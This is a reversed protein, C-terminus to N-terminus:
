QLVNQILTSFLQRKGNVGAKRYIATCHIKVKAINIGRSNAIEAMSL